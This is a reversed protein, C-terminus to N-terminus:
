SPFIPTLGSEDTPVQLIRSHYPGGEAGESDWTVLGESPTTADGFKTTTAMNHIERIDQTYPCASFDIRDLTTM